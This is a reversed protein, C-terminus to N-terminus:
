KTSPSATKVFEGEYRYHYYFLANAAVPSVFGRQGIDGLDILNEYFNFLLGAARNFSFSKNRGSVKSSIMEERVEDPYRYSLKSV